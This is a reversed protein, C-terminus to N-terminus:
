EYDSKYSTMDPERKLVLDVVRFASWCWTCYPRVPYPNIPHHKIGDNIGGRNPLVQWCIKEVFKGALADHVLSCAEQRLATLKEDSRDIETVEPIHTKM